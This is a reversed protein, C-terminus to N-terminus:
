NLQTSQLERGSRAGINAKNGNEEEYDNRLRRTAIERDNYRERRGLIKSRNECRMRM